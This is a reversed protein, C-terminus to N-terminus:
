LPALTVLSLRKTLCFHFVSLQIPHPSASVFVLPFHYVLFMQRVYIGYPEGYFIVDRSAFFSQFLFINVQINGIRRVLEAAKPFM